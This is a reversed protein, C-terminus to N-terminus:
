RKIDDHDFWLVTSRSSKLGDQFCLQYGPRVWTTVLSTAGSRWRLYLALYQRGRLGSIQLAFRNMVHVQHPNLSLPRVSFLIRPKTILNVGAATGKMILIFQKMLPGHHKCTRQRCKPPTQSVKLTVVISSSLLLVIFKFTRRILLFTPLFSTAM